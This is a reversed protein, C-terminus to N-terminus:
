DYFDDDNNTRQEARKATLVHIVGCPQFPLAIRFWFSSPSRVAITPAFATPGQWGSAVFVFSIM